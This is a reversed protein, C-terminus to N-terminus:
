CFSFQGNPVFIWTDGKQSGNQPETPVIHAFTCKIRLLALLQLGLEQLIGTGTCTCTICTYRYM